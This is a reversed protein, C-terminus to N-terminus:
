PNHKTTSAPHLVSWTLTKNRKSSPPRRSPSLSPWANEDSPDYSVYCTSPRKTSQWANTNPPKPNAREQPDAHKASLKAAYETFANRKPCNTCQLSHGDKSLTQLNNSQTLWEILLDINNEADRLHDLKTILLYRGDSATLKTPEVTSFIPNGSPDTCKDLILEQLTLTDGNYDITTEELDRAGTISISRTQKNFESQKALLARWASPEMINRQPNPVFQMDGMTEHFPSDDRFAEAIKIRAADAVNVDVHITVTPVYTKKNAEYLIQTDPILSVEINPGLHSQLSEKVFDRHSYTPHMHLIFGLSVIHNSSHSHLNIWLGTKKLWMMMSTNSTKIEYFTATTSITVFFYIAKRRADTGHDRAYYKLKTDNPIETSKIIPILHTPNGTPVISGKPDVNHIAALLQELIPKPHIIDNTCHKMPVSVKLKHSYMKVSADIAAATTGSTFGTPPPANEPPLTGSLHPTAGPPSPSNFTM